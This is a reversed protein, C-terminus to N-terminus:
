LKRKYARLFSPEDPRKTSQKAEVSFTNAWVEADRMMRASWSDIDKLRPLQDKKMVQKLLNLMKESTM